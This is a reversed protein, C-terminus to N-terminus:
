SMEQLYITRLKKDYTQFEGIDQALVESLIISDAFSISNKKYLALGNELVKRENSILNDMLLLEQMFEVLNSKTEKYFSRLVWETELFVAQPVYLQIKGDLCNQLLKESTAFQPERKTYFAILVNSDIAVLKM